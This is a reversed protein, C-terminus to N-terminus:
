MTITPREANIAGGLISEIKRVVAQAEVGHFQMGIGPERNGIAIRPTMWVVKGAVPYRETDNPLTLLLFVDDGLDFKKPTPVFLGGNKVFSMYYLYLTHKDKINLNLMGAKVAM